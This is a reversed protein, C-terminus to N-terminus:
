FEALIVSEMQKQFLDEQGVPAVSNMTKIRENTGLTKQLIWAALYFSSYCGGATAINGRSVFPQDVVTIGLEQLQQQRTSYTTAPLNQLLGLKALLLAGSCQSALIQKKPDLKFKNLYLPSNILQQIKPGSGFIVVDCDKSSKLPGHTQIKIGTKSTHFPQDGLVLCQLHPNRNLIDWAIFFDIDTFDDFLIFGIQTNM